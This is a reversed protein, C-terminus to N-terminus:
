LLLVQNIVGLMKVAQLTWLVLGNMVSGVALQIDFLM